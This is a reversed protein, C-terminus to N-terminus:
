KFSKITRAQKKLEHFSKFSQSKNLKQVSVGVEQQLWHLYSQKGELVKQIIM